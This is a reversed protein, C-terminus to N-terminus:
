NKASMSPPRGAFVFTDGGGKVFEAPPKPHRFLYTREGAYVALPISRPDFGPWLMTSQGIRSVEQSIATALEQGPQQALACSQLGAVLVASIIGRSLIRGSWRRLRHHM